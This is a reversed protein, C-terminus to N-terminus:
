KRQLVNHKKRIIYYLIKQTLWKLLHTKKTHKVTEGDGCQRHSNLPPYCMMEIGEWLGFIVIKCAPWFCYFSGNPIFFFTMDVWYRGGEGRAYSYPTWIKCVHLPPRFRELSLLILTILEGSRWSRGTIHFVVLISYPPIYSYLNPFDSWCPVLVSLSWVTLRVNWVSLCQEVVFLIHCILKKFCIGRLEVVTFTKTTDCLSSKGRSLTFIIKTTAKGM